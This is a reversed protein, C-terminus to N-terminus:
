ILNSDFATEELMVDKCTTDTTTQPKQQRDHNCIYVDWAPSVGSLCLPTYMTDVAPFQM